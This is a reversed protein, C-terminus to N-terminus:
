AITADKAALNFGQLTGQVSKSSPLPLLVHRM